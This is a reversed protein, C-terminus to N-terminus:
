RAVGESLEREMRDVRQVLAALDRELARRDGDQKAIDKSMTDLKTNLGELGKSVGEFANRVLFGLVGLIGAAAAGVVWVTLSQDALVEAALM